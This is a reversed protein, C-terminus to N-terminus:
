YIINLRRICRKVDNKEYKSASTLFAFAEMRGSLPSGMGMGQYEVFFFLVSKNRIQADVFNYDVLRSEIGATQRTRQPM